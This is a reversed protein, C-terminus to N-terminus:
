RELTFGRGGVEAVRSVIIFATPDIQGIRQKATPLKRYPLVSLILKSPKGSYGAESAVLTAGADCDHLIAARIEQYAESIITVQALEAGAALTKNLTMSTVAVTVLGYIIHTTDHHPIQLLLIPIDVANLVLHVPIKWKRNLILALVDIGGTSAGTRVVIGIGGGIFLGALVSALFPDHLYGHFFPQSEFFQLLLPFLFTSLLTTLAFAKGLVLLGAAFLTLNAAAVSLSVPIGLYDNLIIGIGSVGGATIHNELVLTSLGFALLANGLAIWLIERIKKM